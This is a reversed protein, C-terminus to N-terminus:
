SPRPFNRMEFQRARWGDPTWVPEVTYLGGGGALYSRSRARDGEYERLQDKVLPGIHTDSSVVVLKV